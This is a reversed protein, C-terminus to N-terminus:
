CSSVPCSYSLLDHKQRVGLIDPNLINKHCAMYRFYHKLHNLISQYTSLKYPRQDTSIILVAM